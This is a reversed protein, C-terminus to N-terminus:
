PAIYGDVTCMEEGYLYYNEEDDGYVCTVITHLDQPDEMDLIYDEWDECEKTVVQVSDCRELWQTKGKLHLRVEYM